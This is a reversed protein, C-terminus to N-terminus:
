IQPAYAFTTILVAGHSETIDFRFIGSYQNLEKSLCKISDILVNKGQCSHLKSAFDTGELRLTKKDAEDMNICLETYPLEAENLFQNIGAVSELVGKIEPYAQESQM